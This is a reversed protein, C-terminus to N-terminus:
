QAPERRAVRTELGADAFGIARATGVAGGGEPVM